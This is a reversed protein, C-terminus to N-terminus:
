NRNSHQMIVNTNSLINEPRSSGFLIASVGGSACQAVVYELSAPGATRGSSFVSMAINRTRQSAFSAVVKQPSPNMRFGSINYNACVWPRELGIRDCLVEVALPHNMTIFGPEVGFRRTVVDAFAEIEGYAEISLLLDFAANQLFVGRMPLGKCMLVELETLLKMLGGFRGFLLGMAAPALRFTNLQFLTDKLVVPISQTSLKSWYKHAYPLCASYFMGPFLNSRRIEDFVPEFRDHTTFMFDRVGADYAAAIVSVIADPHAFKEFLRSASAQNSHNVGLFQNDGLIARGFSM